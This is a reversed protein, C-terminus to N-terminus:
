RRPGTVQQLSVDDVYTGVGNSTGVDRLELRSNPSNARVRFTAYTWATESVGQGSAELQTLVEGNWVVELANESVDTGPRAAFALRLEYEAGPRTAVDQFIGTADAGDLEVLQDGSAPRGAVRNQLEISRGVSRNWGPVSPVLRFNGRPLSPQEFSGNVILEGRPGPGPGPGHGYGPGPGPPPPPPPPPPRPQFTLRVDRVAHLATAEGTAASLGLRDSSLQV